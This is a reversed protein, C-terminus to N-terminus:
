IEFGTARLIKETALAPPIKAVVEQLFAQAMILSAQAAPIGRSQLYFLAQADLMGVTAGHTCRVDDAFIELQPRAYIMANRDWLLNKSEQYAQIKQANKEVQIRGHFAATAKPYAIGKYLQNSQTHPSSHRILTSNDIFGEPKPVYFGYLHAEAQTGILNLYLNNRVWGQSTTLTYVNAQANSNVNQTIHTFIHAHPAATQDLLLHLQTNPALDIHLRLGVLAQTEGLWRLLLYYTGEETIPIYASVFAAKENEPLPLPLPHIKEPDPTLRLYTYSAAVTLADWTSDFPTLPIDPDHAGEWPAYDQVLNWNKELPAAPTYKWLENKPSPFDYERLYAQAKERLPTSDVIQTGLAHLPNERALIQTSVRM